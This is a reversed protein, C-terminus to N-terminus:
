RKTLSSPSLCCLRNVSLKFGIVLLMTSGFRLRPDVTLILPSFSTYGNSGVIVVIVVIITVICSRLLFLSVIFFNLIDNGSPSTSSLINNASVGCCSCGCGCGRGRKTGIHCPGFSSCPCNLTLCQLFRQKINPSVHNYVCQWYQRVKYPISFSLVLWNSECNDTM